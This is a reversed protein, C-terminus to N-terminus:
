QPMELVTRSAKQVQGERLMKVKSNLILHDGLAVRLQENKLIRKNKKYIEVSLKAREAKKM